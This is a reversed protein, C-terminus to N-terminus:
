AFSACLYFLTHQKASICVETSKIIVTHAPLNVGMALSSTSLLLPIHGQKFSQEVLNKDEFTLGAHHFVIGNPVSAILRSDKFRHRSLIFLYFCVAFPFIYTKKCTTEPKVENWLSNCDISLYTYTNTSAQKSHHLTSCFHRRYMPLTYGYIPICFNTHWKSVKESAAFFRCCLLDIIQLQWCSALERAFCM